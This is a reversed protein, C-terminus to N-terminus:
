NALETCVADVDDVNVTLLMRSGAERPALVAPEILEPVATAKLLNVLTDGFTFVASNEDEFALPVGLVDRYFDRTAALDEVFLTITAIGNAWAGM